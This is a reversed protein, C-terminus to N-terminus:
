QASGGGGAQPSGRGLVAGAIMPRALAERIRTALAGTDTQKTM